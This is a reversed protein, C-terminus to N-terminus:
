GNIAKGAVPEAVREFGFQLGTLKRNISQNDPDLALAIDFLAAARRTADRAEGAELLGSSAFDAHAEALAILSASGSVAPAQAAASLVAITRAFGAQLKALVNAALVRVSADQDKMAMRLARAHAPEFNSAILRLADFREQLAGNAMVDALPRVRSAGAIRLRGDLEGRQLLVFPRFDDDDWEHDIRDTTKNGLPAATWAALGLALAIASGLPGAIAIWLTAQLFASGADASRRLLRQSTLVLLAVIGAHLGLLVGIGIQTRSFALVAALEVATVLLCLAILLGRTASYSRKSM